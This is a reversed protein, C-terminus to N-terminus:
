NEVSVKLSSLTLLGPKSEFKACLDGKLGCDPQILFGKNEPHQPKIDKSPIKSKKPPNNDVIKKRRGRKKIEPIPDM